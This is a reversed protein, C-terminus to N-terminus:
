GAPVSTVSIRGMAAEISSTSCDRVSVSIQKGSPPQSIAAVARATLTGDPGAQGLAVVATGPRLQGLRAHVVVVLTAGSTTVPVRAGTSTVLTFGTRGADAVMGQVPAPGTPNVATFPPGVTVLAAQIAGGSRAGRVRVLVGDNIEGLLNGSQSVFTTATTTVTVPRGSATRIVLSSGHVQELTGGAQQLQSCGTVATLAAGGGGQGVHIHVVGALQGAGVLLVLAAAVSGTVLLARHWPRALGRRGTRRPRAPQGAPSAADALGGVGDAVLNWRSAERQCQECGDLHERARADVPQGAAGAILDELDLHPDRTDTRDANM